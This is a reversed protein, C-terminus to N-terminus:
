LGLVREVARRVRKPLLSLNREVEEGKFCKLAILAYRYADGIGYEDCSVSVYLREHDERRTMRVVYQPRVKREYRVCEVRPNGVADLEPAPPLAPAHGNTTTGLPLQAAHGNTSPTPPQFKALMDRTELTAIKILRLEDTNERVAEILATLAQLDSDFAM